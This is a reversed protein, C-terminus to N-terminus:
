RSSEDELLDREKYLFYGLLTYFYLTLIKEELVNYFLAMLLAAITLSFLVPTITDSRRKWLQIMIGVIFFLVFLTGITGTQVLFQIYQNDSYIRDPLGYQDSIPSGYSLTASDGFTGFGTGIVPHEMYIDIGKFVVYLRGWETSKQIIDDSFIEKFRNSFTSSPSQKTDNHEMEDEIDHEDVQSSPNTRNPGEQAVYTKATNAPYYIICLGIVVIVVFSKLMKWDKRLLIYLIFAIGFALISGRSYTLCLVGLMLIAASILPWKYKHFTQYAYLTAFLCISLYTGLVNPNATLGYVRMENVSSLNWNEWAVPVFLTRSSIFEILGHISLITGMIVTIGVFRKIDKRTFTLEGLVFVLLFTILFARNQFVIAKLEVGTTFAAITGTLCFLIIGSTVLYKTLGTFTKKHKIYEIITLVFLFVIVVDGLLKFGNNIEILFPRIPFYVFLLLLGSKKEKWVLFLTLVISVLSVAIHTFILPLLISIGFLLGLHKNETFM